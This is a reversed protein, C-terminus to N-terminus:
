RPLDSTDVCKAQSGMDSWDCAHSNKRRVGASMVLRQNTLNVGVKNKPTFEWVIHNTSGTIPQYVIHRLWDRVSIALCVALWCECELASLLSIRRKHLFHEIKAFISNNNNDQKHIHMLYVILIYRWSFFKSITRNWMWFIRSLMGM